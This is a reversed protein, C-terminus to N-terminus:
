RSVERAGPSHARTSQQFSPPQIRSTKQRRESKFTWTSLIERITAKARILSGYAEKDMSLLEYPIQEVLEVVASLAAAGISNMRVHESSQQSSVTDIFSVVQSPVVRPM